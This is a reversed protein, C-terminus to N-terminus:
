ITNDRASTLIVLTMIEPMSLSCSRERSLPYDALLKKKWEPEFAKYFEDVACYLETLSEM